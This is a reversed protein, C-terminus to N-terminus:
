QVSFTITVFSINNISKNLSRLNFVILGVSSHSHHTPFIEKLGKFGLQFYM